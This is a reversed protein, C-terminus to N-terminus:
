ERGGRREAGATAHDDPEVQRRGRFRRSGPGTEPVRAGVHTGHRAARRAAAPAEGSCCADRAPM